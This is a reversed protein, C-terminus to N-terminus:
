RLFLVKEQASRGGSELRILYVGSAVREGTVDRGDWGVVHRGRGLPRRSLTRVLQGRVNYVGVLVPSGGDPVDVMVVCEASAPNPFPRSLSLTLEGGTSVSPRLHGVVDESGDLFRARLEYWFTTGPWVSDDVFVGPSEPPLLESSLPEFPGNASTSRCLRFGEVTGLAGVTWRLVVAGDESLSAFFTGEVPTETTLNMFISIGDSSTNSMAIDLDGDGDIDGSVADHAGDQGAFPIQDQFTGDGNGLLLVLNDDNSDVVAIDDHGDGNFDRVESDIPEVGAPYSSLGQFSGAGDGLFVFVAGSNYCPVVVDPADDANFHGASAHGTGVGGTLHVAPAGFSGDGNGLLVALSSSDYAGMPVALDVEGDGDLDVVAPRYVSMGSSGGTTYSGVETFTGDGNGTFTTVERVGGNSVILDVGGRGDLDATVVASPYGVDFPTGATFTGNGNGLLVSAQRDNITVTVLDLEADGNFFGSVMSTPFDGVPSESALTFSGDGGGSYVQVKSTDSWRCAAALDLYEDDDFLGLTIAYPNKYCDLVPTTQFTGDGVGLLVSVDEGERTAVVLDQVGDEDFDGIALSYPESGVGYTAASSFGGAGDGLFVHVVDDYRSCTAFDPDDDGNFDGAIASYPADGVPYTTGSQFTGDGNGLYVSVDDSDRNPIVLDLHGDGDFDAISIDHPADGAPYDVAPSFTGDGAGILISFSDSEFNAVALDVHGDENFDGDLVTYPETGVAYEPVAPYTFDGAGDGFVIRVNDEHWNASVADLLSDENVDVLIVCNPGGGILITDATAFTGDGYGLLFGLNNSEWNAVVLDQHDDGDLDGIAISFPGEADWSDEATGYEVADEFTGDGRGLLVAVEEDERLPVALDDHGDGNFDGVAVDRPWDGCYFDRRAEFLGFATATLLLLIAISLFACLRTM